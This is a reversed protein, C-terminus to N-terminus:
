VVYAIPADFDRHLNTNHHLLPPVDAFSNKKKSLTLSISLSHASIFGNLTNANAICLKQKLM